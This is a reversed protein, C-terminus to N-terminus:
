NPDRNEELIAVAERLATRFPSLVLRRVDSFSITMAEGRDLDLVSLEADAPECTELMPNIRGVSRHWVEATGSPTRAWYALAAVDIVGGSPALLGSGPACLRVFVPKEPDDDARKVHVRRPEEEGDLWLHDAFVDLATAVDLVRGRAVKELLDEDIKATALIRRRLEDNQSM